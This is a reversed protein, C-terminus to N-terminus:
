GGLCLYRLQWFRPCTERYTILRHSSAGLTSELHNNSADGNDKPHPGIVRWGYTQQNEIQHISVGSGCFFELPM